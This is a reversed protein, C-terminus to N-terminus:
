FRAFQASRQEQFRSTHDFFEDRDGGLLFENTLARQLHLLVARDKALPTIGPMRLIHSVHAALGNDAAGDVKIGSGEPLVEAPRGTTRSLASSGQETKGADAFSCSGITHLGIAQAKASSFHRPSRSHQGGDSRIFSPRSQSLCRRDSEYGWGPNERAMQVVLRETEQDQSARCKSAGRETSAKTEIVCEMVIKGIANRVCISISEAHVDM